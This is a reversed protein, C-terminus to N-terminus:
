RRGEARLLRHLVRQIDEGMLGARKGVAILKALEEELVEEVSKHLKADEELQRQLEFEDM